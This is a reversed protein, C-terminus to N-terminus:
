EWRVGLETAIAVFHRQTSAGAFIRWSDEWRLFCIAQGPRGYARMRNVEGVFPWDRDLTGVLEPPVVATGCCRMAGGFAGQWHLNVVLFVSLHEHEVYWEIPEGNVGQYAPPDDDPEPSVTTAWLVVAQNEELFVLKGADVFWEHPAYLRNFIRNFRRERGAVRYYERLAQPLRVGLRKEGAEIRSDANGDRPTLPRGLRAYTRRYLDRVDDRDRHHSRKHTASESQPAARRLRQDNTMESVGQDLVDTVKGTVSLLKVIDGGKADLLAGSRGRVSRPSSVTRLTAAQAAWTPRM